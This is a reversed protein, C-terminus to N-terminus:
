AWTEGAAISDSIDGLADAVPGSVPKDTDPTNDVLDLGLMALTIDGTLGEISTVFNTASPPVPPEGGVEGVDDSGYIPLTM